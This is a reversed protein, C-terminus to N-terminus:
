LKQATYSAKSSDINCLKAKIIVDDAWIWDKLVWSVLTGQGTVTDAM